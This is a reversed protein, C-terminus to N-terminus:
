RMVKFKGKLEPNIRIAERLEGDTNNFLQRQESEDKLAEDNVSLLQYGNDKVEQIKSDMLAKVDEFKPLTYSVSTDLTILNNQLIIENQARNYTISYEEIRDITDIQEPTMFNKYYTIFKGYDGLVKDAPVFLYSNHVLEHETKTLAVLGVVLYYHLKTVEKATAQLELSEGYFLRKNFVILSIDFLTFPSHHLEISIKNDSDSAIGDMFASENMGMNEKLYRIARRYEISSRVEKEVDQIYKKFDKDSYIDYTEVDYQPIDEFKLVQLQNEKTRKTTDEIHMISNPDIM